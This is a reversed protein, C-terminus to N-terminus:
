SCFLFFPSSSRSKNIKKRESCLSDRTALSFVRISFRGILGLPTNVFSTEIHKNTRSARSRVGSGSEEYYEAAMDTMEQVDPPRYETYRQVGGPPCFLKENQDEAHAKDIFEQFFVRVDELESIM